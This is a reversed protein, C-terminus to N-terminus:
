LRGDKQGVTCAAMLSRRRSRQTHAAARIAPSMMTNLRRPLLGDFGSPLLVGISLTPATSARTRATAPVLWANRVRSATRWM